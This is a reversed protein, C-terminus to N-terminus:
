IEEKLKNFYVRIEELMSRGKKRTYFKDICYAFTGGLVVFATGVVWGNGLLSSDSGEKSKASIALSATDM